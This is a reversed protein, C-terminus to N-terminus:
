QDLGMQRRVAAITYDKIWQRAAQWEAEEEPTLEVPEFSDMRAIVQARFEPTDLYADEEIGWEGVDYANAAQTAQPMVTVRAGDPWSVASDLEVHGARYTGQIEDV